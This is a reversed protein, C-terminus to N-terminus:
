FLGSGLLRVTGFSAAALSVLYVAGALFARGRRGSLFLRFVCYGALFVSGAICPIALLVMVDALIRCKAYVYCFLALAVLVVPVAAAGVLLWISDSRFFTRM